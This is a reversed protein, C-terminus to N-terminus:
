QEVVAIAGSHSTEVSEGDQELRELSDANQLAVVVGGGVESDESHYQVSDQVVCALPHSFWLLLM